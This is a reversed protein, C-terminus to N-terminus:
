CYYKRRRVRPTYIYYYYYYRSRARARARAREFREAGDDHLYVCSHRLVTTRTARDVRSMINHREKKVARRSWINFKFISYTSNYSSRRDSPDFPGVVRLATREARICYRASSLIIIRWPRSTYVRARADRYTLFDSEELFAQVVRAATMEDDSTSQILNNSAKVPQVGGRTTNMHGDCVDDYLTVTRRCTRRTPRSLLMEAVYRCNELIFIPSPFAPLGRASSFLDVGHSSGLSFYHGASLSTSRRVIM